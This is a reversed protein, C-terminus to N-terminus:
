VAVKKKQREAARRQQRNMPPAANASIHKSYDAADKFVQLWKECIADWNHEAAWAYAGDMDPTEGAMIKELADAAESVNMLPRLRENDSQGLCFWDSPEAGSPILFARNDAAMEHLSTNDPAVLPTKTAMAETVSLGWGEGLTTTLVADSANYIMNIAELPLGQNVTFVRPSPLIFDENIKFNFHDAMVLLNGGSDMHAMHLYLLADTNGRDRLEKLIMFSRMIDKRPQNRNINTILFRGDAKGMFYKERFEAVEAEDEVCFFDKLNTGHYIPTLLKDKIPPYIKISAERAYNTYPVPFDIYNVCDEIWEKKPAADIPYYLITAFKKAPPQLAERTEVVKDIITQIIFTDQIIFVVDYIGKGLENLFKQRGYVDPSYMDAVTVAPIIRGPWRQLNIEDAPDYNIGIVTINYEDTANLRQMINSAVHGFGTSCGYDAMVLVNIKDSM